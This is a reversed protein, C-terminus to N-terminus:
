TRGTTEDRGDVGDPGRERPRGAVTLRKLGRGAGPGPGRRDGVGEGPAAAVRTPVVAHRDGGRVGLAVQEDGRVDAGLEVREDGGRVGGAGGRLAAVQAPRHEARWGEVGHPRRERPRGAVTLRERGRGAGPGPGRRDGVGEGPAAAVRAPVVARRDGGRVGLAVQEDGRVDAGLEVREDGGRVGGAGGRLAAVQAPRHEPRWGDVGDPRRKRPRRPVTLRQGGRGAGPRPRAGIM